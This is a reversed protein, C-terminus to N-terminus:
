AAVVLILDIGPVESVACFMLKELKDSIQCCSFACPDTWRFIIILKVRLKAGLYSISYNSQILWTSSM